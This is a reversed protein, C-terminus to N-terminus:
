QCIDYQRCIRIFRPEYYGRALLNATLKRAAELDEAMITQMVMSAQAQCSRDPALDDSRGLAAFHSDFLDKGEQQWYLFRATLIRDMYTARDAEKAILRGLHDVAESLLAAADDQSGTRWKMDSFRLLYSVWNIHRKLNEWSETELVQRLPERLSEMEVLAEQLRGLDALVEAWYSARMLYAFRQSLNSPEVLSLQGLIEKARFYNELAVEPLGVQYSVSALGTLSYAYLNKLGANGPSKEFQERAIAVQEQRSILADGLDCVMLQTDALWALTGGYESRYTPNDPAMQIVKRNIEVAAKIHTLATGADSDGRETMLAAMNAEAYSTEMIWEPNDPELELSKLYFGVAEENRGIEEFTQAIKIHLATDDPSIEIARLLFPIATEYRELKILAM